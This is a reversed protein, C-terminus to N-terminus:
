NTSVLKLTEVKARLEGYMRNNDFLKLCEYLDNMLKSCKQAAIVKDMEDEIQRIFAVLFLKLANGGDITIRVPENGKTKRTIKEISEWCKAITAMQGILNAYAQIISKMLMSPTDM